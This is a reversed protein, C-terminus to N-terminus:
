AAFLADLTAQPREYIYRDSDKTTKNNQVLFDTEIMRNDLRGDLYRLIHDAMDEATTVPVNQCIHNLNKKPDILNFDTPLKMITMAERVTLFRDEKPHAMKTPLHGVFAGIYDKPLEIERKMVVNGNSVKRHKTMTTDYKREFGNDKLWNACDLYNSNEEIYKLINMSKDIKTAMFEQHSIGGHLKELVYRYLPDQSPINENTLRNMPDNPDHIVSDLLDEIRQHPRQIVDFRPIKNGKWFFYFTRDRIQSLGHLLSKTRFISFSYGYKKAYARLDRVVLEGMKSALQPSNEGWFVRPQINELVFETTIKMWDNAAADPANHNSLTSLGACPCVTNVVDVYHPKFNYNASDIVHYPVKTGYYNVLHSDNNGFAEYSLMYEPKKGFVNSQGLTEGGILPVISAHTFETTM